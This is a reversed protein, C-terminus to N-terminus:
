LKKAQLTNILIKVSEGVYTVSFRQRLGRLTCYSTGGKCCARGALTLRCSKKEKQHKEVAM